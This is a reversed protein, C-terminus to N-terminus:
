EWLRYATQTRGTAADRTVTIASRNDIHCLRPDLEMLSRPDKFLPAPWGGEFRTTLCPIVLSVYSPGTNDQTSFSSSLLGLVKGESDVVPGGSMGGWSPCAVELVPWPMMVRDRGAIYRAVVKGSCILINATFEAPASSREFFDQAARFGFITLQEGIKPMRTTVVTQYLSDGDSLSSALELGLIALDSNPVITIKKTRWIQLGAKTVGFCTMAERSALLDDIRPQVVHSACLAVGPAVLVASGDIRHSGIDSFQVALLVGHLSEWDELWAPEAPPVYKLLIAELRFAAGPAVTTAPDPAVVGVSKRNM